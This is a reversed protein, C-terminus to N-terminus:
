RSRSGATLTQCWPLWCTSWCLSQWPWTYRLSERFYGGILYKTFFFLLHIEGQNSTFVLAHCVPLNRCGWLGHNWVPCLLSGGGDQCPSYDWDGNCQHLTGEPLSWTPETRRWVRRWSSWIASKLCLPLPWIWPRLPQTHLLHLPIDKIAFIWRLVVM